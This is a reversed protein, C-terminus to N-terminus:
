CTTDRYLYLLGTCNYKEPATDIGKSWLQYTNLYRQDQTERCGIFDYAGQFRLRGDGDFDFGTMALRSIFGINDDPSITYFPATYTPAIM